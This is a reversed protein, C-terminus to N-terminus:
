EGCIDFQDIDFLYWAGDANVFILRYSPEPLKSNSFPSVHWAEVLVFDPKGDADLDLTTLSAQTFQEHIQNKNQVDYQLKRPPQFDLKIQEAFGPLAEKSYFHFLTEDSFNKGKKRERLSKVPESQEASVGLRFGDKCTSATNYSASSYSASKLQGDLMLRHKYIAQQLFVDLKGIDWWGLLARSSPDYQHWYPGSQVKIAYPIQFQTSLEEIRASPKGLEPLSKFYSATAVPLKLQRLMLLVGPYFLSPHLRAAAALTNKEPMEEAQALALIQTWSAPPKSHASVPEIVGAAMRQKMAEFEPIPFRRPVPPKEWNFKDDVTELAKQQPSLMTEQFFKGAEQLRRLSPAIWFMRAPYYNSSSGTRNESDVFDELRLAKDGLLNCAIFGQQGEGWSIACFKDTSASQDLQVSTNAVLHTLVTANADPKSRVNVWSGHVWRTQTTATQAMADWSIGTFFLATAVLALPIKKM